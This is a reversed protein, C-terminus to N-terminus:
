ETIQKFITAALVGVAIALVGLEVCDVSQHCSPRNPQAVCANAVLAHRILRKDPPKSPSHAILLSLLSTLDPSHAGLATTSRSGYMLQSTEEVKSAQEGLGWLQRFVEGGRGGSPGQRHLTPHAERHRHARLAWDRCWAAVFALPQRVTHHSARAFGHWQRGQLHSARAQAPSLESLAVRRGHQHQHQKGSSQAQLVPLL